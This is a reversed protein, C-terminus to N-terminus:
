RKKDTLYWQVMKKLGGEITYKQVFGMERLREAKHHTTKNIKQIAAYLSFEIRLLRIIKDVVSATILMPKYPLNFVPYKIGLYQYILRVFESYALHPEDAYNFVEFGSLNQKILYLTADVLNEVYVVSKVNNGTGIPIYGKYYIQRILRYVNGKNHPGFIVTPRIVIASRAKNQEVWERVAMEAALKSKGYHNNPQPPTSETTYDQVDGYIAVTSFFVLRNVKMKEMASLVNRTGQENVMYYEKESVGFFRHKAALHIILDIGQMSEILIGEDLISGHKYTYQSNKNKEEVSDFVIINYGEELLSHCLYSGVFGSGGILM